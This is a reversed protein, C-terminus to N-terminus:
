VCCDSTEKEFPNFGDGDSFGFTDRDCSAESSSAGKEEELYEPDDHGDDGIM